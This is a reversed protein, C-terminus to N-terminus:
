RWSINRKSLSTQVRGLGDIKGEKKLKDWQDYFRLFPQIINYELEIPSANKLCDIVGIDTYFQLLWNIKASFMNCVSPIPIWPDGMIEIQAGCCGKMCFPNYICQDCGPISSNINNMLISIAMQPNNAIIDVIQNEKVEFHGYLYKDYATRHCPCIAMDGLRICLDNAVTCGMFTDCGPFAWNIYGNLSKISDEPEIFHLGFVSAAISAPDDNHIEKCYAKTYFELVKLYEKINEDTWDDNRVELTMLNWKNMEYKDFQEWWWKLNEVWFSMTSAAWMPHFHYNNHKAFSFVLDYFDDSYFENKNKSPRNAQEVIKGDISISFVLPHGSERFLDIYHQIKQLYIDYKVFTCNSPILFWDARLGKKIYEYTLELIQIGFDTHWIEGSFFEIKPIHFNEKLIWDFLVRLNNLLLEPNRKDSPYLDPFRQLYCYECNLNCANTVYIEINADNALADEDWTDFSWPNFFRTNLITKLLYDQEKQFQTREENLM